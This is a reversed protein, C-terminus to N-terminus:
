EVGSVRSDKAHTAREISGAVGCFRLNSSTLREHPWDKSGLEIGWVKLVLSIETKLHHLDCNRSM